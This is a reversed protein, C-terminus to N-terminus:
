LQRYVERRHGVKVVYIVLRQDWIEYVIRYDGVRIRFVPGEQGKLKEVGYPRPNRALADIASAVAARNARSLRSLERIASKKIEIVYAM